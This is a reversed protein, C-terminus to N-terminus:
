TTPRASAPGSGPTPHGGTAPFGCSRCGGNSPSSTSRRPDLGPPAPVALHPVPRGAGAAPGSPPRDPAGLRGWRGRARGRHCAAPAPRQAVAPPRGAVGPRSRRGAGVPEVLLRHRPRPSSSRGPGCSTPCRWGSASTPTCTCCTGPSTASGGAAAGLSTAVAMVVCATGALALLMGPYDTILDWFAAPAPGLQGAAYGLSILVVHAVMLNFSSFGVVRHHRALQDQGFARELQPLRAMLLVQVLLLSLWLGTGAGLRVAADRRAPEASSAAPRSPPIPRPLVTATTAHNV